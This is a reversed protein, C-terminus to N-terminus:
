FSRIPIARDWVNGHQCQAAEGILQSSFRSPPPPWVPKEHLDVRVYIKMSSWKLFFITEFYIYIDCFFQVYIYTDNIDLFQNPVNWGRFLSSQENLLLIVGQSLCPPFPQSLPSFSSLPLFLNNAEQKLQVPLRQPPHWVMKWQSAFLVYCFVVFTPCFQCHTWFM